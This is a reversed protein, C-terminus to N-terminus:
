ERQLEFQARLKERRVDEAVPNEKVGGFLYGLAVITLMTLFFIRFRQTSTKRLVLVGVQVGLAVAILTGWVLAASIEHFFGLAAYTSLKATNMALAAATITAVLPVGTLGYRFLFPAAIPGTTGFLASLCGTLLGVAPIQNLAIGWERTSRNLESAVFILLGVALVRRLLLEPMNGVLFAGIIAGIVGGAALRWVLNWRADRWIALTLMVNRSIQSLAVVVLADRPPLLALAIPMLVGAGGVGTASNVVGSCFTSLCILLLRVEPSLDPFLM